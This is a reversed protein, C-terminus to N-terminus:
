EEKERERERERERESERMKETHVKDFAVRFEVFLAYMKRDEGREEETQEKSFPGPHVCKGNQM